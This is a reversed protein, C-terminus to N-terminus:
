TPHDKHSYNYSTPHTSLLHCLSRNCSVTCTHDVERGPLERLGVMLGKFGEDAGAGHFRPQRPASARDQEEVGSVRHAGRGLVHAQRGAHDLVPFAPEDLAADRAELIRGSRPSRFHDRQPFLGANQRVRLTARRSGHRLPGAARHRRAVPHRLTKHPPQPPAMAELRVANLRVNRTGVGVEFGLRRGDQAQVEIGRRVGDHEAHIFLAVNLGQIAGLGDQRQPGVPRLAVAELIQAASRQREIGRQFHRRPLDAPVADRAVARRLKHREEILRGAPISPFRDVENDVVERRVLRCGYLRPQCLVRANLQIVRRRVAGPEVLDFEPETLELAIANRSADERGREIELSLEERVDLLVVPVGCREQPGVVSRLSPDTDSM